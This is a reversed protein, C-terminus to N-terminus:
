LCHYFFSIYRHIPIQVQRTVTHSVLGFSSILVAESQSRHGFFGQCWVETTDFTESKHPNRPSIGLISGTRTFLLKTKSYEKSM